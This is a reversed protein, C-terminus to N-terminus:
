QLVLHISLNGALKSCRQHWCALQVAVNYLISYNCEVRPPYM